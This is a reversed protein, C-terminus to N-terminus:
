LIRELRLACRMDAIWSLCPHVRFVRFSPDTPDGRRGRDGERQLLDLDHSFIQDDVGLVRRGCGKYLRFWTLVSQCINGGSLFFGKVINGGDECEGRLRPEVERPDM